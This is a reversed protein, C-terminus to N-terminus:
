TVLYIYMKLRGDTSACITLVTIFEIVKSTHQMSKILTDFDCPYRSRLTYQGMKYKLAIPYLKNPDM